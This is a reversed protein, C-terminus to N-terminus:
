AYYAEQMLSRYRVDATGAADPQDIRLIRFGLARAWGEAAPAMPAGGIYALRLKNLGLERRVARLVLLNALARIPGSLKGANVAWRYLGRQLPTAANAARTIRDHLREWADANAGFVTPQVEQLNETATEASELYNSVVRSDLALYLGLVRETVDSMPLVALREDGPRTGLMVRAKEVLHVLDGHTLARGMDGADGRPVLSVAPQDAAISAVTEEFTPASANAQSAGAAVFDALSTCQPDAFERLGKMDLIVIRALANCEARVSLVKDLQEENEVFAVRCGTARLIHGVQHAEEDPHIAVSAGGAALIGLDAYVSEPRTESVVAACEGHDFDLAKLGQGIERVKRDLEAWSVAKWIGRDKKRLVTEAPHATARQHVMAPITATTASKLEV